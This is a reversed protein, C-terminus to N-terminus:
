IPSGSNILRPALPQIKTSSEEGRKTANIYTVYNVHDQKEDVNVGEKNKNSTM